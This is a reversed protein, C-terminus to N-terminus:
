SVRSVSTCGTSQDFELVYEAGVRSELKKRAQGRLEEDQVLLVLQPTLEPLNATISERHVSFLRGFPTDLVLPAEEGAVRAMATIFSLSLVQREGASLEPRAPLGWRDVVDLRYDDSLNIERFQSDKWILRRFIERAEAQISTRVGTAFSELVGALADAASRALSARRQLELAKKEETQVRKMQAELTVLLETLNDYKARARGEQLRLEEIGLRCDERKKELAGVEEVEPNEQLRRSLERLRGDAVEIRQHFGAVQARSSALRTPAKAAAVSLARLFGSAKLVENELESSVTSRLLGEVTARENTGQELGRGCICTSRELLDKIFQERIGSPIEGKKRKEDLVTLSRAPLDGLLLLFGESAQERVPEWAKDLQSELDKIQSELDSRTLLLGKIENIEGLRSDIESLLRHRLTMERKGEEIQASIIDREQSTSDSQEALEQLKGTAVSRLEKSLERAVTDLHNRTRELLEVKVVNRIAERVEHEQSPKAFEEIKEGDFFFYTRVNAPLWTEIQAPANEIEDLSGSPKIKAMYVDSQNRPRWSRQGDKVLELSRVVRYHQGDDVVGVEVSVEVTEGVKAEMVSKKNVIEGVDDPFTGYLAWNLALFLSTKGTGNNGNIVTVNRAEDCSFVLRQSGYYQKFNKLTISEIKM